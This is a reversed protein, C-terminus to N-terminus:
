VAMQIAQLKQEWKKRRYEDKELGIAKKYLAISKDIRNLHYYVEALHQAILSAEPHLRQAKKLYSLAKQPKGQKFFVWGLTDLIYGDSPALTLARIAMKGASELHTNQDAYIFALHNLAEVHNAEIKLVAKMQEIAKQTQGIQDYVFGTYFLIETNTPFVQTAKQLIALAGPWDRIQELFGAYLMYIRASTRPHTTLTKEMIKLAKKYEKKRGWLVALQSSIEWNEPDVRSILQWQAIAKDWNKQQHYFHYLFLSFPLYFGATKQFDTLTSVALGKQGSKKYFSFLEMVPPLFDPQFVLAKKLHSLYEETKSAKKAIQALLYHVAHLNREGVQSLTLLSPRARDLAGTKIYVGVKNYLAPQHDPNQLLIKNYTALAKKYLQTKRYILGKELLLATNNPQEKLLKHCEELAPLYLGAKLYEEMVRKRLFFSPRYVLASKFLNLAKHHFGRVSAREGKIYFWDAQSLMYHQDIVPGAKEPRKKIDQSKKTSLTQCATTFILCLLFFYTKKM